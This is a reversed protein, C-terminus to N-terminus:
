SFDGSAEQHRPHLLRPDSHTPDCFGAHFHLAHICSTREHVRKRALLHQLQCRTFIWFGPQCRWTTWDLQCSVCDPENWFFWFARCPRPDPFDLWSWRISGGNTTSHPRLPFHSRDHPFLHGLYRALCDVVIWNFLQIMWHLYTYCNYVFYSPQICPYIMLIVKRKM